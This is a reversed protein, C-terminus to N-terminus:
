NVAQTNFHTFKYRDQFDSPTNSMSLNARCDSSYFIVLDLCFEIYVFCKRGFMIVNVGTKCSNKKLYFCVIFHNLILVSGVKILLFPIEGTLNLFRTFPLRM